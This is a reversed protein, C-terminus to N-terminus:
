EKAKLLRPTDKIHQMTTDHVIKNYEEVIDAGFRDVLAKKVKENLEIINQYEKSIYEDM